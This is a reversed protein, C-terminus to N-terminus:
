THYASEGHATQDLGKAEAESGVRLGVAARVAALIAYSAVVSWLFTAIIGLLQVLFQLIM